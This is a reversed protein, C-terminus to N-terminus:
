TCDNKKTALVIISKAPFYGLINKIQKFVPKLNLTDSKFSETVLIAELTSIQQQDAIKLIQLEIRNLIEKDNYKLRNDGLGITDLHWYKDSM